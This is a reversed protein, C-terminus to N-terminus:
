AEGHDPLVWARGSVVAILSLPAEDLVRVCWPPSMVTRLLFADRARPGDLLGALADMAASRLRDRMSELSGARSGRLVDLNLRGMVARRGRGTRTVPPVPLVPRRTAERRHDAPRGTRM